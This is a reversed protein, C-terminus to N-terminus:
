KLLEVSESIAKFDGDRYVFKTVMQAAPCCFGGPFMDERYWYVSFGNGDPNAEVTGGRGISVPDIVAIIKDGQVIEYLEIGFTGGGDFSVIQEPVGDATVDMTELDIYYHYYDDSSYYRKLIDGYELVDEKYRNEFIGSGELVKVWEEDSPLPPLDKNTIEIGKFTILEKVEPASSVETTTTQQIIEPPMNSVGTQIGLSFGLYFISVGLVIALLQSYWTVKRWEIVSLNYCVIKEQIIVGIVRLWWGKRHAASGV